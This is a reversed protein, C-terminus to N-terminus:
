LCSNELVPSSSSHFQRVAAHSTTLGTMEKELWWVGAPSGTTPLVVTVSAGARGTGKLSFLPRPWPRKLNDLVLILSSEQRFRAARHNFIRKWYIGSKLHRTQKKGAVSISHNLLYLVTHIRLSSESQPPQRTLNLASCVLVEFGNLERFVHLIWFFINTVVWLWCCAPTPHVLNRGAQDVLQLGLQRQWPLTVPCQKSCLGRNISVAARQADVSGNLQCQNGTNLILTSFLCAYQESMQFYKQWPRHPPCLNSM